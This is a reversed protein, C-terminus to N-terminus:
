SSHENRKRNSHEDQDTRHPTINRTNPFRLVAAPPRLPHYLIRPSCRSSPRPLFSILPAPQTCLFRVGYSHTPQAMMRGHWPVLSSLPRMLFSSLSRPPIVPLSSSISLPTLRSSAWFLVTTDYVLLTRRKVPLILPHIQYFGDRLLSRTSFGTPANRRRGRFRSFSACPHGRSM